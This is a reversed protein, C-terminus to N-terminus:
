SQQKKEYRRKVFSVWQVTVNHKEAIQRQSLVKEKLDVLISQSTTKIQKELYCIRCYPALKDKLRGCDCLDKYWLFNIKRGYRTIREIRQKLHKPM